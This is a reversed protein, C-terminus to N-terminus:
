LRQQYKKRFETFVDTGDLMEVEGSDIEQVRKEAEAFWQAEISEECGDFDYEDFVHEVVGYPPGNLDHLDDM